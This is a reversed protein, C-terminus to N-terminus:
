NILSTHKKERGLIWNTGFRISVKQANQPFIPDLINDTMLFTQWGGLKLALGVGINKYSDKMLTYSVVLGFGRNNLNASLTVSSNLENNWLRGHYLAGFSLIDALQYSAGVFMKLPITTKYSDHSLKPDFTKFLSDIYLNGMDLSDDLFDNLCIGTFNLEGKARLNTVNDNWRIFGLDTVSAHLKLNSVPSYTAGLDIAIGGNKMNTVYGIPDLDKQNTKIVLSDGESDYYLDTVEVIPQSANIDFDANFIFNGTVPDTRWELTSKDFQLNGMGFLAKAKVGYSFVTSQEHTIGLGIERYHLAKAGFGSLDVYPDPFDDNGYVLLRLLDRPFSVGAEVKEVMSFHWFVNKTRFGFHLLDIYTHFDIRNVPKLGDAFARSKGVDHFVTALSDGFAGGPKYVIDSYCFSNVSIGLNLPPLIQGSVPIILGGFYGKYDLTTSPNLRVSNPVSHLYYMGINEQAEVQIAVFFFFLPLVNRLIKIKYKSM